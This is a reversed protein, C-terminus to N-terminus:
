ISIECCDGTVEPTTEELLKGVNDIGATLIVNIEEMRISEKACVKRQRCLM